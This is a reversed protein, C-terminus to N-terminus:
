ARSAEEGSRHRRLLADVSFRGIPALAVHLGFVLLGVDRAADLWLNSAGASGAASGFCGCDIELGRLAGQVLAVIFVLMLANTTWASIRTFLGALLYLGLLVEIYPLSNASLTVFWEPVGLEYTRISAALSGPDFVKTAGASLFVGGLVIRSLLTAYSGTLISRAASGRNQGEKAM